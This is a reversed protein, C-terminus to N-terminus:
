LPRPLPYDPDAIRLDTLSKAEKWIRRSPGSRMKEEVVDTLCLWPLYVEEWRQPQDREWEGQVSRLSHQWLQLLSIAEVEAIVILHPCDDWCDLTTCRDGERGPRGRSDACFTGLGTRALNDLRKAFVEPAIGLKAAAADINRAVVAEFSDGFEKILRDYLYRIPWRNQYGASIQATHQGIAAGAQLRGDNELAARLLVSPRIMSPVIGLGSLEKTSGINRKFWNTYWHPEVLKYEGQILAVFLPDLEEQSNANRNAAARAFKASSAIWEIAEVALSKSPLDAIIPKGKARAKFGTIRTHGRLDSPERCDAALTRGVAPNAGSALLYLTLGAGIGDPHPNIYADLEVKNGICEYRKEFFQGLGEAKGASRHDPMLGDYRMIAITIMNAVGLLRREETLEDSSIPFHPALAITREHRNLSSYGAFFENPDINARQVIIEGQDYHSRWYLYKEEAVRQIDDLRRNIVTLIAQAPDASLNEDRRLEADLVSLFASSEEATIDVSFKKAAGTLQAQAFDVYSARGNNHQECGAVEVAEALTKRKGGKKSSNKKGTLPNRLGPVIRKSSFADFVRRVVSIYHTISNDKLPSDECDVLDNRWNWLSNEWNKQSIQVGRNAAKVVALCDPSNSLGIFDFVDLLKLYVSKWSAESITSVYEVFGVCIRESFSEGWVPVLGQFDYRRKGVLPYIKSVLAEKRIELEKRSIISAYPEHYLHSEVINTALSLNKKSVTLGDKDLPCDTDMIMEICQLQDRMKKTMYGGSAVRSDFEDFMEKIKPSRILFTGGRIDFVHCFEKRDVKNNRIELLGDQMKDELWNRMAPLKTELNTSAAVEAEYRNFVERLGRKKFIFASCGLEGAYHTLNIKGGRGLVVGGAAFDRELIEELRALDRACADGGQLQTPMM